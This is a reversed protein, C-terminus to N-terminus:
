FDYRTRLQVSAGAAGVGSGHWRYNRDTLNDAFLTLNLRRTLRFGANAGVVVFGPTHALLPASIANGLLRRQVQELSEGSALLM